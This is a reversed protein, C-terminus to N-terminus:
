DWVGTCYTSGVTMEKIQVEGKNRRLLREWSLDLAPLGQGHSPSLRPVYTLCISGKGAHCGSVRAKKV